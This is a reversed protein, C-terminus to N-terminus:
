TVDWDSSLWLEIVAIVAWDRSPWLEIVARTVAWDRSATVMKNVTLQGDVWRSSVTLLWPPWKKESPNMHGVHPGDPLPVSLVWIPGMNAEHVKSDPFTWTIAQCRVPSFTNGSNIIVNSVSSHKCLQLNM